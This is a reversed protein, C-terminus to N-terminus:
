KLQSDTHSNKSKGVVSLPLANYWRISFDSALICYHGNHKKSVTTRSRNIDTTITTAEVICYLIRLCVKHCM